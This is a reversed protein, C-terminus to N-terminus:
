DAESFAVRVGPWATKRAKAYKEDLELRVQASGHTSRGRAPPARM